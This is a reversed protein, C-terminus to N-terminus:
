PKSTAWDHSAYFIFVPVEIRSINYDPPTSNGYLMMNRGGYDFKRFRGRVADSLYILTKLSTGGPLQNFFVPITEPSIQTFPGLFLNVLNLCLLMLSPSALCTPRTLRSSYGRSVVQVVNLNNSLS